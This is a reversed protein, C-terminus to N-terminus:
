TSQPLATSSRFPPFSFHSISFSFHLIGAEVDEVKANEM